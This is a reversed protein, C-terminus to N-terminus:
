EDNNVKMVFNLNYATGPMYFASKELVKNSPKTSIYDNCDNFGIWGNTDYELYSPHFLLIRNGSLVYCAHNESKEEISKILKTLGIGGSNIKKESGSIRHQFASINCFDVLDYNFGDFYKSHNEKAEIVKAYRNDVSEKTNLKEIKKSIGDGLLINSFGVIAINIGCVSEGSKSVYNTAIDFDVLCDSKSHEIANGILEVIVESIEELCDYNINFNKQFYAVDDYIKCLKDSSQYDEYKVVRRFHKKFHEYNFKEIFEKNKEYISKNQVNGLLMLPSYKIGETIIKKQFKFFVEVKRHFVTILSEIICELLIYSLKDTLVVNYFIFRIPISTIAYKNQIYNLNKIISVIVDNNLSKNEIIIQIAGKNLQINPPKKLSFSSNKKFILSSDNM